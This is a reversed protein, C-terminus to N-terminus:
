QLVHERLDLRVDLGNAVDADSPEQDVELERHDLLDLDHEAAVDGDRSTVNVEPAVEPLIEPLLFM